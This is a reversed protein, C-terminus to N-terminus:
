ASVHRTVPIDSERLLRELDDSHSGSFREELLTLIDREPSGGLLRVLRLDHAPNTQFWEYEGDPSVVRTSPGFDQGDIHLDGETDCYAWLYRSDAGDSDSRLQVTRGRRRGFTGEENRVPLMSASLSQRRGTAVAQDTAVPCM